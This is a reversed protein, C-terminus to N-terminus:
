YLPNSLKIESYKAQLSQKEEWRDIADIAAGCLERLREVEAKSAALERELKRSLAYSDEHKKLMAEPKPPCHRFEIADTRPTDTTVNGICKDIHASTEAEEPLPATEALLKEAYKWEPELEGYPPPPLKSKIFARLREVEAKLQSNENAYCTSTRLLTYDEGKPAIFDSGCQFGTDEEWTKAGCHPCVDTRPTDTTM